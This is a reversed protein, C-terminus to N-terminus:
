ILGLSKASEKSIFVDKGNASVKIKNSEMIKSEVFQLSDGDSEVAKLCIAETQDKVYRLAYGDSEVANMAEKGSLDKKTDLSLWRKFYKEM